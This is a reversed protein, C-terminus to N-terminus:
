RWSGYLSLWYLVVNSYEGSFTGQSNTNSEVPLDGEYFISFGAGWSFDETKDYKFGGGIRYVDGIPVQPVRNADRQWASDWSAGMTYMLKGTKQYEAGVGFHWTDEAQIDTTEDISSDTIGIDVQGFESWEEWGVNGLLAWRDSVRQWVGGMVQNPMTMGIELDRGAGSISNGNGRKISPNAKFDLDTEMLYRLSIRTDDSPEFMVGLNPQVAFDTDSYRFKGDSDGLPTAPLSTKYKLYGVTFGLGAGVSWDDNIKYAVTPQIQPAIVIAQNAEYRGAWTSGWNLLLGFYNGAHVGFAWKDNLPRVYQANGLAVLETAKGKHGSVTNDDDTRFPAKLYLLTGGATLESKDFSTMGAPNSFVVSADTQRAVFQIGGYAVNSAASEEGIYLGGASAM